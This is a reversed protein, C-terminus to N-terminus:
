RRDTVAPAFGLKFDFSSIAIIAAGIIALGLVLGATRGASVRRFSVGSISDSPVLLQGTPGVAYMTDNTISAGPQLFQIARGSRMTVGTARELGTANGNFPAHRTTVCGAVTPALLLLLALTGFPRRASLFM